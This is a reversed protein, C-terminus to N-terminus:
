RGPVSSRHPRDVTDRAALGPAVTKSLGADVEDAVAPKGRLRTLANPRGSGPGPGAGRPPMVVSELRVPALDSKIVGYHRVEGLRDGEAISVDITEKHVDLGVFMSRNGM